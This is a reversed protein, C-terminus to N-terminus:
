QSRRGKVPGGTVTGAAKVPRQTKPFRRGVPDGHCFQAAAETAAAHPDPLRQAAARTAPAHPLRATKPKLPDLTQANRTPNEFGYPGPDLKPSKPYPNIKLGM